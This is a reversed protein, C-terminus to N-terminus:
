FEPCPVIRKRSKHKHHKGGGMIACLSREGIYSINIEHSGHSANALRSLTMDYSYSIYYRPASGIKLGAVFSMADINNGGRLWVGLFPAKWLFNSGFFFTQMPKQYEYTLAPAIVFSEDFSSPINCNGHIVFKWPLKSSMGTFSLDPQIIHHWSAGIRASSKKKISRRKVVNQWEFIGGLSFDPKGISTKAPITFDSPRVIGHVNDFQDSFVFKDWNITKSIYSIQFGLQIILKKTLHIRTSFPVGFTTTKLSGEGEIDSIFIVGIGGLGKICSIDYDASFKDTNFKSTIHPWLVRHTFSLEGAKSLGCYAPNFYLKNFYIQSFSPDQGNVSFYHLQFIFLL